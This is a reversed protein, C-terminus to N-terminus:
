GRTPRTASDIGGQSWYLRPLDLTAEEEITAGLPVDQAIAPPHVKPLLGAGPHPAGVELEPGPVGVGADCQAALHHHGAAHGADGAESLLYVRVGKHTHHKM